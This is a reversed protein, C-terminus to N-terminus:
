LITMMIQGQSIDFLETFGWVMSDVRDPSENGSREVTEFTEMQEELKDLVGYHFIKNKEYLAAVPEARKVKGRTARVSKYSVNPDVNRIVAEIMEGGNNIEGIIRDAEWKYYLDVAIQGWESPKYKGSLDVLVYGFDGKRAEVTIGTENSNDNSTAAPDISVVIRDFDPIEYIREIYEPKFLCGEDDDAFEGKKFRKKEKEPLGELIDLYAEDINELNDDPNMQLSVYNDPPLEKKTKPHIHKIFMRYTWHRKHPPNMDFYAKKRLENKEALRTMAINISSLDLQSSENFYVSSYEKGLIKEVRDKDDLGGIWIESGNPFKLYYDTKDHIILRKIKPFAASIVKPLTDLWISTKCHNFNKRLILHRSKCKLARIILTYIIIFTKGSRGGGFLMTYLASQCLLKIAEVQKKTKSFKKSKDSETSDEM